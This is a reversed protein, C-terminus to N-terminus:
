ILQTMSQINPFTVDKLLTVIQMLDCSIARIDMTEHQRMNELIPDLTSAVLDMNEASINYMMQIADPTKSVAADNVSEQRIYVSLAKIKSSYKSLLAEIPATAVPYKPNDEKRRNFIRFLGNMLRGFIGDRNNRFLGTIRSLVGGDSKEDVIVTAEESEDIMMSERLNSIDDSDCVDSCTESNDQLLRSPLIMDDTVREHDLETGTEHSEDIDNDDDYRDL